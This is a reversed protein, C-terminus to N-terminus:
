YPSPDRVVDYHLIIVPKITALYHNALLNVPVGLKGQSPRLPRYSKVKTGGGRRLMVTLRYCYLPSSAHTVCTVIPFSLLGARHLGVADVWYAVTCVTPYVTAGSVEM